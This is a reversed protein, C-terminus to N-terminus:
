QKPNELTVTSVEVTGIHNNSKDLVGVRLYYEGTAPMAMEQSLRLGGRSAAAFDQDSMHLPVTRSTKNVTNSENDYGIIMFELTASRKDKDIQWNIDEPDIAYDVRYRRQPRLSVTALKEGQSSKQAANAPPNIAVSPSVHISFIIETPDPAGRRMTAILTSAENRESEPTTQQNAATAARESAIYSTRYSLHYNKGELNVKIKRNKGDWNTNSPVYTLTYYNAGMNIAKVVAGAVDNTNVFAHGGTEDAVRYMTAQQALVQASAQMSQRAHSGPDVQQAGPITSGVQATYLGDATLGLVEVPYVAVQSKALDISVQQVERSFDTTSDFPRSGATASSADLFYQLAFGGSAWILNKRGPLASLYQSLQHLATLTLDARDRLAAVFVRRDYLALASGPDFGAAEFTGGPSMVMAQDAAGPQISSSAQLAASGLIGRQRSVAAKLVAPDSTFSQLMVLRNSIGFVAVRTGPPLSDVVSKLQSRLFPQAELPTNLSDLVIINLASGEPATVVNTFTNPPMKPQPPLTADPPAATHEEFHRITQSQKDELLAFDSSKLGHVANGKSDTVVVDVVVIRSKVHLTAPESAPQQAPCPHAIASALLLVAFATKMTLRSFIMCGM